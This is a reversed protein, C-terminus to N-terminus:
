KKFKRINLKLDGPKPMKINPVCCDILDNSCDQRYVTNGTCSMYKKDSDVFNPCFERATTSPILPECEQLKDETVCFDKSNNKNAIIKQPYDSSAHTNCEPIYTKQYVSTAHAQFSFIVSLLFCNICIKSM